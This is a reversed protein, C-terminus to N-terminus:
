WFMYPSFFIAYRKAVILYGSKMKTVSPSVKQHPCSVVCILNMHASNIDSNRLIVFWRHASVGLFWQDRRKRRSLFVLGCLAYLLVGCINFACYVTHYRSSVLLILQMWRNGLCTASWWTALKRSIVGMSYSVVLVYSQLFLIVLYLVSLTM